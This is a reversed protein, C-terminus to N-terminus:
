QGIKLSVLEKKQERCNSASDMCQTKIQKRNVDIGTMEKLVRTLFQQAHFVEHCCGFAKINPFVDYLAKVCISMPNTFNIVWANPCIEKIKSAFFEFMPITRMARLVGGPGVTDGVSQYIGYKEPTHVDSRMEKFTGPLISILVFDANRLADDIKEYVNYTFISQTKPNKNIYKAINQNRKAAEIDIDYLAMEGELDKTLALDSMFVRAWQKSGGGIYAIKIHKKM